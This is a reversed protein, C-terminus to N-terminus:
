NYPCSQLDAGAPPFKPIQGKGGILFLLFDIFLLGKQQITKMGKREDVVSSYYNLYYFGNKVAYDKIWKNLTVIKEAPELGPKWPYDYVPLVSSLIIHAPALM